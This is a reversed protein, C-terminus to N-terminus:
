PTLGTRNTVAVSSLSRCSNAMQPAVGDKDSRTFTHKNSSVCVKCACLSVVSPGLDGGSIHAQKPQHLCYTVSAFHGCQDRHEVLRGDIQITTNGHRKGQICKHLPADTCLLTVDEDTAMSVVLPLAIRTATAPM